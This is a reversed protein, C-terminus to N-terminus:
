PPQAPPSPARLAKIYAILQLVQGENLQDGFTPMLPQYGAVLQAAPNKISNRLYQDDAVVTGGGQLPVQSGFLRVLSPGNGTGDTKHCTECRFREFLKQGAEEPPEGTEGSLWDAFEDQEMVFVTGRM